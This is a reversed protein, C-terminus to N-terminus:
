FKPYTPRPGSEQYPMLKGEMLKEMDEWSSITRGQIDFYEAQLNNLEAKVALQDAPSFYNWIKGFVGKIKFSTDQFYEKGAAIKDQCFEKAKGTAVACADKVEKAKAGAQNILGSLVGADSDLKNKDQVAYKKELEDLTKQVEFNYQDFREKSELNIEELAKISATDTLGVPAAGADLRCEIKNWPWPFVNKDVFFNLATNVVVWAGYIIFLGWFISILVGRGWNGTKENGYHAGIVYMLGGIIVVITAVPPILKLLLFNIVNQILEFFHCFNCEPEGLDGCPVLGKAFVPAAIVFMIIAAAGIIIGSKRKKLFALVM